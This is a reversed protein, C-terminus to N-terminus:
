IVGKIILIQLLINIFIIPFYVVAITPSFLTLFWSNVYKKLPTTDMTLPEKIKDKRVFNYLERFLREQRLYYADLGWFCILPFLSLILLWYNSGNVALIFLLSIFTITWGKILFSNHSMRNITNQLYDLHEAM